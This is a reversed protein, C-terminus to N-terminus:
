DVRLRVLWPVDFEDLEVAWAVSIDSHRVLMGAPLSFRGRPAGDDALMVWESVDTAPTNLQLWLTGDSGAHVLRIPPRHDPLQVAGRVAREMEAESVGMMGALSTPGAVLSDLVSPPVPVPVYRLQRDYITDGTPGLRVARIVGDTGGDPVSWAVRVTGGAMAQELPARPRLAPAYGDGDGVRYIAVDDDATEWRLTDVLQGQRDFRVVPYRYPLIRRGMVVVRSLESEILGDPQPYRPVIMLSLGQQGSEVPTGLAPTTFLVDGSPGFWTLRRATGDHVWLTDGLLGIGGPSSFEGPGQGSRGITRLREGDPSFVRVERAAGDVVYVEGDDGVAMSGIRSFGEDPDDLSGIRLDEVVTIAPLEDIYPAASARPGSCSVVALAGLTVAAASTRLM